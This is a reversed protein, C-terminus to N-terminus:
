EPAVVGGVTLTVSLANCATDIDGSLDDNIDLVQGVVAGGGELLADAINVATAEDVTAGLAGSSLGGESLTARIIANNM